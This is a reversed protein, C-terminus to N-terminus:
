YVMRDFTCHSIPAYRTPTPRPELEETKSSWYRRECLGAAMADDGFALAEDVLGFVHNPRAISPEHLSRVM